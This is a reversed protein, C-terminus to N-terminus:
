IFEIENIKLLCDNNSLSAIIESKLAELQSQMHIDKSLGAINIKVKNTFSNPKNFKFYRVIEEVGNRIGCPITLTLPNIKDFYLTNAQQEYYELSKNYVTTNRIKSNKWAYPDFRSDGLLIENLTTGHQKPLTGIYYIGDLFSVNSYQHKKFSPTNDSNYDGIVIENVKITFNAEDMDINVSITYWGEEIESLSWKHTICNNGDPLYLNFYLNNEEAHALLKNSDIVGKFVDDESYPLKTFYTDVGERDIDYVIASISKNAAVVAVYVNKEEFASNIFRYYDLSLIKDYEKLPYNYIKTKSKDFVEFTQSKSDTDFGRILAFSGNPGFALNDISVDSSFEAYRSATSSTQIRGLSQNFIYYWDDNDKKEKIIGYVTDNDHAVKMIDFNFAYLNNDKSFCISKLIAESESLYSDKSVTINSYYEGDNLFRMTYASENKYDPNFIIKVIRNWGPNNIIAYLNKNHHIVCVESIKKILDAKDQTTTNSINEFLIRNKLRLDFDL